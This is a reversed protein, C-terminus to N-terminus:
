NISKLVKQAPEESYDADIVQGSDPRPLVQLLAEIEKLMTKRDIEVKLKDNLRGKMRAILELARLRDKHQKDRSIESLHQDLEEDGMTFKERFREEAAEMLDPFRRRIDRAIMAPASLNGERKGGYALRAAQTANLKAEGEYAALFAKVKATLRRKGAM